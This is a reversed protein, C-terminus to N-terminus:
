RTQLNTHRYLEVKHTQKYTTHTYYARTYVKHAHAMVTHTRTHTHTHTYQLAIVEEKLIRRKRVQRCNRSRWHLRFCSLCICWHFCPINATPVCVHAKCSIFIVKHFQISNSVACLKIIPHINTSHKLLLM